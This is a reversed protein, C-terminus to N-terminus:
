QRPKWPRYNEFREHWSFRAHQFQEAIQLIVEIFLVVKQAVDEYDKATRNIARPKFIVFWPFGSLLKSDGRVSQNYNLVKIPDPTNM